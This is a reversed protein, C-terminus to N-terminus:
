AAKPPGYVPSRRGGARSRQHPSTGGWVGHEGRELAETLCAEWVPCRACVRDRFDHALRSGPKDFVKDVLPLLRPDACAPTAPLPKLALM